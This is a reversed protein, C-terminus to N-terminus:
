GMGYLDDLLNAFANDAPGIERFGPVAIDPLRNAGAFFHGYRRLEVPVQPLTRRWALGVLIIHVRIIPVPESSIPSAFREIISRVLDIDATPRQAHVVWLPDSCGAASVLEFVVPLKIVRQHGTELVRVPRQGPL